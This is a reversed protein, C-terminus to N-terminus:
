IEDLLANSKAYQMVSQMNCGLFLGGFHNKVTTLDELTITARDNAM